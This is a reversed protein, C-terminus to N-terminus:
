CNSSGNERLRELLTESDHRLHLWMNESNMLALCYVWQIHLLTCINQFLM